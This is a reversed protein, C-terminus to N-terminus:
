YACLLSGVCVCLHLFFGLVYVAKWSSRQWLRCTPCVRWRLFIGLLSREGYLFLRNTTMVRLVSCFGGLRTIVVRRGCPSLVATSLPPLMLFRRRVLRSLAHGVSSSLFDCIQGGLFSVNSFEVFIETTTVCPVVV